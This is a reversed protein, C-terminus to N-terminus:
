SLEEARRDPDAALQAASVDRHDRGHPLEQLCEKINRLIDRVHATLQSAGGAIVVATTLGAAIEVVGIRHPERVVSEAEEIGKLRSLQADLQPIVAPLDAQPDTDIQILLEAM